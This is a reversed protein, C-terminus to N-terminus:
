EHRQPQGNPVPYGVPTPKGPFFSKNEWQSKRYEKTAKKTYPNFGGLRGLGWVVNAQGNNDTSRVHKAVLTSPVKNSTVQSM